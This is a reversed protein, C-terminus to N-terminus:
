ATRGLRLLLKKMQEGSNTINSCLTSKKKEAQFKERQTVSINNASLQNWCEIHQLLCAIQKKRGAGQSYM